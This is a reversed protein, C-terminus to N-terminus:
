KVYKYKDVKREAEIIKDKHARIDKEKQALDADGHCPRLEMEKLKEKLENMEKQIKIIEIKNSRSVMEKREKNGRIFM